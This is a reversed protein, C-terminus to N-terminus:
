THGFGWHANFIRTLFTDGFLHVGIYVPFQMIQGFVGQAAAAEKLRTDVAKREAQTGGHWYAIDHEYCAQTLDLGPLKDPFLTCGDYVFPIPPVEKGRETGFAIAEDTMDQTTEPVFVREVTVAFVILILILSIYKMITYM